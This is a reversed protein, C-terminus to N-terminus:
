PKPFLLQLVNGEDIRFLLKKSFLGPEDRKM